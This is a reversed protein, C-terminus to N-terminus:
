PKVAAFQLVPRMPHWAMYPGIATAHEIAIRTLDGGTTRHWDLMRRESELTVANAVLRGGPKLASWCSEFLGDHSAGGGIFVADPPDLGQLVSPATGDVIRLKPTGLTAANVAIMDLRAAAREIAIARCGAHSRMWEIAISGCGAGVDWLLQGPVPALKALTVARVERKTLQGDHRFADDPLGPVRPLLPTGPEAVCEIGLTNLDAADDISWDRAIGHRVREGRGGMHELVAIRSAGFGRACLLAAVRAPSAGGESLALIRRGPLLYGNLLELPRGHITISDVEALPWGLRAAALSYASPAPVIVMEDGPVRKALTVGIGHWMPDGTALVCVRRDRRALIQDVLLTLPTTWTLRERADPPVMGLHRAGGVLVDARDVLTRAASILGELGDEGLGVVFLWPRM